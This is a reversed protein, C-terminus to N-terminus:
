ERAVVVDTGALYDQLARRRRDFLVPLFGLFLLSIALTLGILRVFSRLVSPSRGRHDVVRFGTLRLGPTQGLVSWFGVFYVVAIVFWAVAVLTDILTSSHFRGFLSTVLAIFVFPVLVILHVLLADTGLAIMRSAIGGYHRRGERAAGLSLRDDIHGSLKRLAGAAENAFGVSQRALAERVQPSQLLKEVIEGALRSEVASAAARGLAPNELARRIQEQTREDELAKTLAEDLSLQPVLEVVVREIVRQDVLLQAMEEPLPGALTRGVVAEAGTRGRVVAARGEAGVEGAVRQMGRTGTLRGAIRLPAFAVRGARLGLRAGIVVIGIAVDEPRSDAQLGRVVPLADDTPENRSRSGTTM